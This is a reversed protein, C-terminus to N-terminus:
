TQDGIRYEKWWQEMRDACERAETCKEPEHKGSREALEAWFRVVKPALPDKARLVFLVEDEFAKAFCGTEREVAKIAM